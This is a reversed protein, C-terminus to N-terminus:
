TKHLSPDVLRDKQFLAKLLMNTQYPNHSFVVTSEKMLANYMRLTVDHCDNGKNIWLNGTDTTVFIKGKYMSKM